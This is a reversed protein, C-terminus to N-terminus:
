GGSKRLNRSVKGLFLNTEGRLHANGLANFPGYIKGIEMDTVEGNSLRQVFANLDASNRAHNRDSTKDTIFEHVLTLARSYNHREAECLAGACATLLQHRLEGINIQETTADAFFAKILQDIRAVGNSRPNKRLRARAAAYTKTVTDAFPEDSKAEVAILYSGHRDNAHIVLDSNRTEGGFADFKLKVEPEASWNIVHGFYKNGAIAAAVESPM